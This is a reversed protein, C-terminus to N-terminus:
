TELSSLSLRDERIARETKAEKAEAQHRSYGINSSAEKTAAELHSESTEDTNMDTIDGEIIQCVVVCM